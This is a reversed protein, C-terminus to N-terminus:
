FKKTKIKNYSNNIIKMMEDSYSKHGGVKDVHYISSLKKYNRKILDLDTCNDPVGLITYYSMANINKMEVEKDNEKLATELDIIAKELDDISEELVKVVEELERNKQELQAVRERQLYDWRKIAATSDNARIRDLYVYGQDELDGLICSPIGSEAVAIYEDGKKLINFVHKNAHKM